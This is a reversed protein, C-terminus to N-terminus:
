VNVLDLKTAITFVQNVLAALHKERNIELIYIMKRSKSVFNLTQLKTLQITTVKAVGCLEHCCCCFGAQLQQQDGSFSRWSAVLARAVFFKPLGALGCVCVALGCIGFVLVFFVFLWGAHLCLFVSFSWWSVVLARADFFEPLGTLGCVGFVLVFVCVVLGCAFVFVCLICRSSKYVYVTCVWGFLQM